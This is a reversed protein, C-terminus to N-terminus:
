NDLSLKQTMKGNILTSTELGAWQKNHCNNKKINSNTYNVLILIIKIGKDGKETQKM